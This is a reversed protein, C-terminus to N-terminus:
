PDSGASSSVTVWGTCETGNSHLVFLEARMIKVADGRKGVVWTVHHTLADSSGASTAQDPTSSEFQFSGGDAKWWVEQNGARNVYLAEVYIEGCSFLVEGFAPDLPIYTVSEPQRIFRRGGGAVFESAERGGLMDADGASAATKATVAAPVEALTAENVDAGTVQNNAIKGSRVADARLHKTGVSNKPLVIAAYGAGSLSVALAICAVIMAPSPAKFRTRM